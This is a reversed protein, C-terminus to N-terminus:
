LGGGSASGAPQTRLARRNIKGTVTLPIADTFEIERPYEYAALRTRVFQAIEVKLEPSAAENAALQVYAKVVQGRLRDDVGVVAALAVAPHRRLCAEIEEPGIRYGASSIVDDTRSRFWFYGDEDVQALDGTQLWERSYKERTADGLGWYELFVVPDPTRVCIEGVEGAAAFSGDAALVRVDHGPYPRGMSGSRVPWATHSNGVVYNAETQGYFENVVVGLNARAWAATDEGLVEGGSGASRLSPRSLRVGAGAMMKIATPPLFVNRIGHREIVDVAWEPDFRRRPTAVVPRGHYWSPLLADMLGGIWAWDAPTWFRDGDQPFFDHSLEFGPLHGLLARHAHLAGKPPGTTGSTYILLAPTERDTTAAAFSASARDLLQSLTEIPAAAPEDATVVVLDDIDRSVAGVLELREHDTVVVRAGSDVLRHHLADEGFLVSMPVAIAALKYIAIHAIATEVRQPLVLAVRDGRAVGLSAFANALRNSLQAVEGFSFSRESGDESVEIVALDGARQADACTTGINFSGEVRWRFADRLRDYDVPTAPNHL